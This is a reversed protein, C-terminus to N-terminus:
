TLDKLAWLFEEEAIFMGKRFQEHQKKGDPGKTKDNWQTNLRGIRSALSTGINYKM